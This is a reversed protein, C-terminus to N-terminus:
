KQLFDCDAMCVWVGLCGATWATAVGRLIGWCAAQADMIVSYWTQTPGMSHLGSSRPLSGVHDLYPQPLGM